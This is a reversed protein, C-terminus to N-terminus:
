QSILKYFSEWAYTDREIIKNCKEKNEESLLTKSEYHHIKGSFGMDWKIKNYIWNDWYWLKLDSPIPFFKDKNEKKFMFAFWVINKGNNNHLKEYDDKRTFYPCAITHFESKNMLAEITWEEIVIDDNIIFIYDWTAKEVWENWAENVLKNEITIIETDKRNLYWLERLNFMLESYYMDQYLTPIIISLKM